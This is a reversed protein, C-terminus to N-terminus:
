QRFLTRLANTGSQRFIEGGKYIVAGVHGGHAPGGTPLQSFEHPHIADELHESGGGSHNEYGERGGHGANYSTRIRGVKGFLSAAYRNTEQSHNNLFIQTKFNGALADVQADAGQGGSLYSKFNTVSQTMYICAVNSSRATTLFSLETDDAAVLSLHAEDAFIFCPNSTRRRETAKMFLWKLLTSAQRGMTEHVKLPFDVLMIRGAHIDEPTVNTDTCFLERFPSYLFGSAMSTFMSVVSSRTREAWAPFFSLWYRCAFEMDFRDEETAAMACATEIARHCFSEEQWRASRVEEVSQAASEVMQYLDVFSLTPCALRLPVLASRLMEKTSNIWFPDEGAGKSRDGQAVANLNVALSLLNEIYAGGGAKVSYSLPNLRYDGHTRFHVVDEARGTDRCYRLWTAADDPKVCIVMGSWGARLIHEALHRGPGSTKGSGTRGFVVVHEFLDRTSLGDTKSLMVLPADMGSNARGLARLRFIIGDACEIIRHWGLMVGLVVLFGMFILFM